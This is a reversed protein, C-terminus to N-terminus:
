GRLANRIMDLVVDPVNRSAAWRRVGGYRGDLHELLGTITTARAEYLEPYQEMVTRYRPFAALRAKVLPMASGSRLYDAVIDDARVEACALLLAVVLGTRDKGATCHVVLPGRALLIGATELALPVMPDREILDLYADLLLRGPRGTPALELMPINVYAVPHAALPGRGFEVAEAGGRLDLVSRVGWGLMRQADDASLESLSDSRALRGPPVAGGGAGVLGGVDRTNLTGELAELDSM